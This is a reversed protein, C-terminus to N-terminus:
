AAPEFHIRPQPDFSLCRRQERFRPRLSPPMTPSPAANMGARALWPSCADVPVVPCTPEEFRVFYKELPGRRLESFGVGSQFLRM